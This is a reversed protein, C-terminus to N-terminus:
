LNILPPQATEWNSWRIKQLSTNVRFPISRTSPKKFGCCLSGSAMLRHIGEEEGASPISRSVELYIKALTPSWNQWSTIDSFSAIIITSGCRLNPKQWPKKGCKRYLAHVICHFLISFTMYNRTSIIKRSKWLSAINVEQPHLQPVLMQFKRKSWHLMAVLSALPLKGLRQIIKDIVLHLFWSAWAGLFISILWLM